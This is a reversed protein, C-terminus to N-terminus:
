GHPARELIKAMAREARRRDNTSALHRALYEVADADGVRELALVAASRVRAHKDDLAPILQTTVDDIGLRGLTQIATMRVRWHPDDLAIMLSPGADKSGVYALSRAAWVRPWYALRQGTEDSLLQEAHGNGIDILVPRYPPWVLEDLPDDGRMLRLLIGVADNEGLRTVLTGTGSAPTWGM